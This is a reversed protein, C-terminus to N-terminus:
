RYLRELLEELQAPPDLPPDETTDRALEPLVATVLHELLSDMTAHEFLTEIRIQDGLLRTLRQRVETLRLSTMGLDFFGTRRPFEAGGPLGLLEAFEAVVLEELAARRGSKPLALVQRVRPSPETV